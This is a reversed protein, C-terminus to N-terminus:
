IRRKLYLFVSASYAQTPASPWLGAGARLGRLLYQVERRLLVELLHHALLLHHEPQHLLLLLSRAQLLLQPVRRDEGRHLAPLQPHLQQHPYRPHALHRLLRRLHLPLLPHTSVVLLLKM